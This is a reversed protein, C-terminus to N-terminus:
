RATSSTWGASIGAMTRMTQGFAGVITSVFRKGSVAAAM